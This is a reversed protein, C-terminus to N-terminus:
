LQRTKILEKKRTVLYSYLKNRAVVLPSNPEVNEAFERQTKKLFFIKENVEIRANILELKNM